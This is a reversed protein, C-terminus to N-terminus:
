RFKTAVIELIVQSLYSCFVPNLESFYEDSDVMQDAKINKQGDGTRTHFFRNRIASLLDAVNRFKIVLESAVQDKSEFSNIISESVRYFHAANASASFNITYTLDLKAADIFRGQGLMKRYLGMEGTKDEKLIDKLDAFTAYYDNQTGVYILPVSYFMREMARYLYVFAATHCGRKTQYFFNFYELLVDKYFGRNPLVTEAIFKAQNVNLSYDSLFKDFAKRPPLSQRSVVIDSYDENQRVIVSNRTFNLAGILLRVLQYQLSKDGDKPIRGVSVLEFGSHM